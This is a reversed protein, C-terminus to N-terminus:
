PRAVQGVAPAGTPLKPPAPTPSPRGTEAAVVSSPVEVTVASTATVVSSSQELSLSLDSRSQDAVLSANDAQQFIKSLDSKLLHLSNVLPTSFNAFASEMSELEAKLDKLSLVHADTATMCQKLTQNATVRAEERARAAGVRASDLTAQATTNANEVAKRSRNTASELRTQAEEIISDRQANAELLLKEAASKANELSKQVEVQCDAILKEQKAKSKSALDLALRESERRMEDSAAAASARLAAAEAEARALGESAARKLETSQARAAKIIESVAGLSETALDEPGLDELKPRTLFEQRQREFAQREAALTSELEKIVGNLRDIEMKIGKAKSEDAVSRSTATSTQPTEIPAAATIDTIQTGAENLTAPTIEVTGQVSKAVNSVVEKPAEPESEKHRRWFGGKGAQESNSM